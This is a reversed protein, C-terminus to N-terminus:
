SVLAVGNPGAISQIYFVDVSNPNADKLAAVATESAPPLIEGAATGFAAESEVYAKLLAGPLVVGPGEILDAGLGFGINISVPQSLVIGSQAFREDVTDLDAKVDARTAVPITTSYLVHRRHSHNAAVTGDAGRTCGTFERTKEQKGTYEIVENGIRLYGSKHADAIKGAVKIRERTQDIRGNLTTEAHM